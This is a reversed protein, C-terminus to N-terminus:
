VGLKALFWDVVAARYRDASNEAHDSRPALMDGGDRLAVIISVFGVFSRARHGSAGPPAIM